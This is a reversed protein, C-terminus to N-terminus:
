IGTCLLLLIRQNTCRTVPLKVLKCLRANTDIERCTQKLKQIAIQVDTQPDTEWTWRHHDALDKTVLERLVTEPIRGAASEEM